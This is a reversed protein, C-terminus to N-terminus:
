FGPLLDQTVPLHMMRGPESSFLLPVTWNPGTAGLVFEFAIGSKPGADIKGMARFGLLKYQLNGYAGHSRFYRAQPPVGPNGFYQFRWLDMRVTQGLGTPSNAAAMLAAANKPSLVMQFQHVIGRYSRHQLIQGVVNRPIGNVKFPYDPVLNFVSKGLFAMGGEVAALDPRSLAQGKPVALETGPDDALASGRNVTMQDALAKGPL